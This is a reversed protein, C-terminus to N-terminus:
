EGVAGDIAERLLDAHGLHRAYEKILYLYIWRLSYHDSRGFEDDLGLKGMIERSRQCHEAYIALDAEVEEAVAGDFDGDPARDTCYLLALKPDALRHAYAREMETLHRVLGALSMESPLPRSVMQEPTLGACKYLLTVRYYDLWADLMGREDGLRAPETRNVDDTTV